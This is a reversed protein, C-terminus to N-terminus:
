ISAVTEKIYNQDVNEIRLTSVMELMTYMCEVSEVVKDVDLRGNELTYESKIDENKIATESLKRVMSDFVNRPHNNSEMIARRGSMIMAEKIDPKGNDPNLDNDPNNDNSTKADQVRQNTAAIISEVNNRDISNQNVFDEEGDAVRQRITYTIDEMDTQKDLDDYFADIDEPKVDQKVVDDESTGEIISNYHDYVTEQLTDLFSTKGRFSRLLKDVGKEDVYNGVLSETVARQRLSPNRMSNMCIKTLAEKLLAARVNSKYKAYENQKNLAAEKIAYMESYRRDTEKRQQLKAAEQLTAAREEREKYYAVRDARDSM